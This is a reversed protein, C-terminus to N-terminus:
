ATLSEVKKRALDKEISARRIMMPIPIKRSQGCKKLFM